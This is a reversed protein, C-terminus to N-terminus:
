ENNDKNIKELLRRELWEIYEHSYCVSGFYTKNGYKERETPADGTEFKYKLRLDVVTM